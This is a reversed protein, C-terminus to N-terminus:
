RAQKLIAAMDRGYAKMEAEDRKYAAREEGERKAAREAEQLRQEGGSFDDMWERYLARM